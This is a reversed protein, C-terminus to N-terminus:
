LQTILEKLELIMRLNSHTLLEDSLDKDHPNYWFVKWGSNLGGQVDAIPNDGVYSSQSLSSGANKLAASFIEPHPKQVGVEESITLTKFYKELNSHKLKRRQTEAFGNTILHIDYKGALYDLTEIAGPMLKTKTPCIDLYRDWIDQPIDNAQVGMELFTDTFRKTRLLEKKIKHQRYLTWLADNKEYYIAVFEDPTHDSYQALQYFEYLERLTEDANADFDWITHDLDFFINNPM